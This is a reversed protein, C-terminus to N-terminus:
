AARQCAPAADFGPVGASRARLLEEIRRILPGFHYPEPVFEADPFAKAARKAAGIVVLSAKQTRAHDSFGSSIASDDPDAAELSLIIISPCDERAAKLGIDARATARAHYGHHELATKLVERTEDSADVILVSSHCTM